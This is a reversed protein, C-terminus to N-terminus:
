ITKRHDDGAPLEKGKWCFNYSAPNGDPRQKNVGRGAWEGDRTGLLLATKNHVGKKCM